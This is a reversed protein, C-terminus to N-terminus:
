RNETACVSRRTLLAAPAVIGLLLFAQLALYRKKM